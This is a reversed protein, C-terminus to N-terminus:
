ASAAMETKPAEAKAMAPKQLAPVKPALQKPQNMPRGSSGRPRALQGAQMHVAGIDRLLRPIPDEGPVPSKAAQLLQAIDVQDELNPIAFGEGVARLLPKPKWGQAILQPLVAALQPLVNTYFSARLAKTQDSPREMSFAEIELALDDFTAGSGQVFSGGEFIAEATEPVEEGKEQLRQRMAAAAEPGALFRVEDTTFMDYCVTKLIRAAFRNQFSGKIQAVRAGAAQTAELVETATGDGTVVGRQVDDFGLARDRRGRILQDGVLMPQTPGGKELSAIKNALDGLSGTTYIGSHRGNNLLEGLQTDSTVILRAYSEIAESIAKGSRSAQEIHGANALIPSLPHPSDPVPYVGGIIYRGWRPGFMPKPPCVIEGQSPSTGSMSNCGLVTTVGNFGQDPGPEGDLRMGPLYISVFRLQKRDVSTEDRDKIMSGLLSIGANSTTMDEIANLDWGERKDEPKLRDLKARRIMDDKDAWWEHWIIRARRPTPCLHDWGCRDPSVRTVEPWLPPDEAEYAEPLPVLSCLAVSWGYLYDVVFDELTTHFDSDLVWRNMGFQLAEAVQQQAVPRRTTINVRPNSWVLQTALYSVMEFGANEPDFMGDGPVGDWWSGPFKDLMARIGERRTDRVRASALVERMLDKPDLSLTM